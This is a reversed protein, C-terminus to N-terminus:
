RAHFLGPRFNWGRGISAIERPIADTKYTDAVSVKLGGVTFGALGSGARFSIAKEVMLQVSAPVENVADGAGPASEPTVVWGCQYIIEFSGFPRLPATWNKGPAAFITAGLPDSSIFDYNAAPIVEADDTPTWRTISTIATTPETEINQPLTGDFVVRRTQAVIGRWLVGRELEEIVALALLEDAAAVSIPLATPATVVEGFYTMM